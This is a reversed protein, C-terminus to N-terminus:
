RVNYFAKLGPYVATEALMDEIRLLQNYKCIRDTRCVSGTKIKKMYDRYRRNWTQNDSGSSDRNKIVDYIKPVDKADIIDRLCVSAVNWTPIMITMENEIIKMMYFDHEEGNVIRTEISNIRGVGHAPYVALDGVRFERVKQKPTETGEKDTKKTM